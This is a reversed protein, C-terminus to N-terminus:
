ESSGCPFGFSTDFACDHDLPQVVVAKDRRCAPKETLLSVIASCAARAAPSGASSAERSYRVVEEVFAAPLHDALAARTKAGETGHWLGERATGHFSKTTVALPFDSPEQPTPFSGRVFEGSRPDTISITTTNTAGDASYMFILREGGRAQFLTYITEHDGGVVLETMVGPQGAHTFSMHERVLLRDGATLPSAAALLALILIPKRM